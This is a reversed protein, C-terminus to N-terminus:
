AQKEQDPQTQGGPEDQRRRAIDTEYTSLGNVALESSATNAFKLLGTRLVAVHPRREGPQVWRSRADLQEVHGPPHM